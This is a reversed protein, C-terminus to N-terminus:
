GRALMLDSTVQATDDWREITMTPDLGATEARRSASTSERRAVEDALCGRRRDLDVTSGSDPKPHVRFAAGYQADM